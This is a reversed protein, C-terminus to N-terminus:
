CLTQPYYPTTSQLPDTACSNSSWFSTPTTTPVASLNANEYYIIATANPFTDTMNLCDMDVDSRMWYLDTPQGTGKVIVDTCQGVGLTVVTMNYPEVPVFDNAIITMEHGDISFKQNANMGTNILRLRHLKGSTFNFKALDTGQERDSSATTPGKAMSSTTTLTSLPQPTRQVFQDVQFTYTFNGGGPPIPCQSVGPVGDMWPTKRQLLGHWHLTMGEATDTDINNAVTVSITDGWDAEILPGPFQGNIIAKNEEELAAYKGEALANRNKSRSLKGLTSKQLLTENLPLVYSKFGTQLVVIKTIGDLARMRAAIVDNDNNDLQYTPLYVVCATETSAGPLRHACFLCHLQPYRKVSNITMTDKTRGVINLHGESDVMAQDGTKFWGDSTFSETTAVPNNYYREFVVEGGVELDGVATDASHNGNHIRSGSKVINTGNTHFDKMSATNSVNIRMEIGSCCMGVSAFEYGRRIDYEPYEVNLIAGACTETMGFASIICCRPAGFKSLHRSLADATEVVNAEGGSLICTLCSLDLNSEILQAEANDMAPRLKSLFFNPALTLSIRHKNALYVFELPDSILDAKQIHVQSVKSYLVRLHVDILGTVHDLGIFNFYCTNPPTHTRLSKGRMSALLNSHTLCVAKANGTSGSTLMLLALRDERVAELAQGPTVGNGHFPTSMAPVCGAYATSWFWIINDWHNDLHLLIIGHHKFGDIQRIKTATQKAVARLEAYSLWQGNKTDGHGYIHMGRDSNTVIDDLLARFDPVIM